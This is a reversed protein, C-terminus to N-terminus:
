LRSLPGMAGPLVSVAYLTANFYVHLLTPPALREGSREYVWGLLWAVPMVGLAALPPHRWLHAAAFLLSTALNAASLPGVHREALAARRSLARQVGARFVVEEAVAGVLLVAIDRLVDRRPWGFGVYAAGWAVPWAGVLCALWLWRPLGPSRHTDAQESLM